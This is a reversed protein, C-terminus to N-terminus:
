GAKAAAQALAPVFRSLAYPISLPTPSSMPLAAAKDATALYAGSRIAPIRSLLPDSTVEQQQGAKEVYFVVVQADLDVAKEASLDVSFTNTGKSLATVTPSTRMGLAELMRPRNDVATYATVKSTDGPTLYLWAATRGKLQPHRAAAAAIQQETQKTVAAALDARGTAAGIMRVSEQWPTGYPQGPYAIVPAIKSLKDYEAKTIGSNTAVILDPRLKALEDVPAGDADSYRTPAKAGPIKAVAADFWDTSRRANGGWDIAPAGVPVQGLSALVDADSWGLTAVRAPRAPVTTRGFAHQVTVPFGAAAATSGAPSSATDAGAGTPGTSCATLAGAATASVLALLARRRLM